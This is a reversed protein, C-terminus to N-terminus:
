LDRWNSVEPNMRTKQRNINTLLLPIQNGSVQDTVPRQQLGREVHGREEGDIPESGEPPCPGQQQDRGWSCRQGSSATERAVMAFAKRGKQTNETHEKHTRGSITTM